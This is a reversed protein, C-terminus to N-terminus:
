REGVGKGEGYFRRREWTKETQRQKEGRARETEMKKYINKGKEPILSDRKYINIGCTIIKKWDYVTTKNKFHKLTLLVYM